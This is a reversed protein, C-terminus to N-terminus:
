SADDGVCAWCDCPGSGNHIVVADHIQDVDFDADSPFIEAMRRDVDRDWFAQWQDRDNSVDYPESSTM